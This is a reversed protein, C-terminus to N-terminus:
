MLQEAQLVVVGKKLSSEEVRTIMIPEKLAM